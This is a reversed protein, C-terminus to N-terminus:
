IGELMSQKQATPLDRGDYTYGEGDELNIYYPKEKMFFETYDFWPVKKMIFGDCVFVDYEHREVIVRTDKKDFHKILKSYISKKM